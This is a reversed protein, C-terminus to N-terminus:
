QATGGEPGAMVRSHFSLTLRDPVMDIVSEPTPATLSRIGPRADGESVGVPVGTTPTLGPEAAAMRAAGPQPGGGCGEWWARRARGQEGVGAM